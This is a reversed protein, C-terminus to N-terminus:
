FPLMTLFFRALMGSMQAKDLTQANKSEFQVDALQTSNVTGERTIDRPNVVGALRIYETDNNVAVRKEGAVVMNGNGLVDVVTVTISGSVSNSNTEDDKFNQSVSSEPTWTTEGIGRRQGFLVPRPIAIEASASRDEKTESKRKAETKEVLKVTLIDGVQRARRDEFLSLGVNPQFISGSNEARVPSAQPRASLPQKIATEPVTACGAVVSLALLTLLLSHPVTEYNAM